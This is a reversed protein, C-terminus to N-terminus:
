HFRRKPLLRGFVHEFAANSRAWGYVRLATRSRARPRVTIGQHFLQTEPGWRSKATDAGMSLHVFPIHRDIAHKIIEALATTMVSYKGWAPDFGSYYLYLCDPLLFAVRSAVAVGGVYLTFVRALNRNAFRACATRLFRRPGTGAFRDLHPLGGTQQARATHLRFFTGLAREVEEVTEAVALRPTLGDRKLANYCHRLSEKINRKLGSRFEEWSPALRLLNGVEPEGWRLGMAGDLATAFESQRELGEWKIWDWEDEALLHAALARAIEGEFRPDIAPARQETIYQDAGIHSLARARVPGVRPRETMLFPVVGVLEGGGTRVVKVHLTDRILRNDARLTEWWSILWEPELFPLRTTTRALLRLWEPVLRRLGDVTSITSVHLDM